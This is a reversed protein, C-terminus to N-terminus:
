IESVLVIVLFVIGILVFAGTALILYVTFFGMWRAFLRHLRPPVGPPPDQAVREAWEPWLRMSRPTDGRAVDALPPPRWLLPLSIPKDDEVL